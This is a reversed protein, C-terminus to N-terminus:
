KDKVIVRGLMSLDITTEKSVRLYSSSLSVPNVLTRNNVLHTTQVMQPTLTIIIIEREREKLM